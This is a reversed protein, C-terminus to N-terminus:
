LNCSLTCLHVDTLGRQQVYAHANAHAPAHTSTLLRTHLHSCTRIYAVLSGGRLDHPSLRRAVSAPGVDEYKVLRTGLTTGADRLMCDECHYLGRLQSARLVAGQVRSGYIVGHLLM